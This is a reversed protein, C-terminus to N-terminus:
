TTICAGWEPVMRKVEAVAKIKKKMEKALNEEYGHHRFLMSQGM